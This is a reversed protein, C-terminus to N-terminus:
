NKVELVVNVMKIIWDFVREYISKAFSDRSYSAQEANLPSEVDEVAAVHFKRNVLAKEVSERCLSLMTCFKNLAHQSLEDNSIRYALSSSENQDQRRKVGVEELEVFKINGM